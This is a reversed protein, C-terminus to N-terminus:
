APCGLQQRISDASNILAVGKAETLVGAIVYQQVKNKFDQLQSCAPALKDNNLSRLANMLPHLLGNAQGTRLSGSDVLHEISIVLSEIQNQPTVVGPVFTLLVQRWTNDSALFVFSANGFNWSIASTPLSDNALMSTNGTYLVSFDTPAPLGVTTSFTDVGAADTFFQDNNNGVDNFASIQMNSSSRTATLGLEPISISLSGVRYTGTNPSSDTDSQATDYSITVRISRADAFRPAFEQQAADIRVANVYEGSVTLSTGSFRLTVLEAYAGSSFGLVSALLLLMRGFRSVLKTPSM